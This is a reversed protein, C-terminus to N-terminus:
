LYCTIRLRGAKVENPRIGEETARTRDAMTRPMATMVDARTAAQEVPADLRLGPAFAGDHWDNAPSVTSAKAQDEPPSKTATSVEDM